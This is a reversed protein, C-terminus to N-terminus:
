RHPNAAMTQRLAAAPDRTRAPTDTGGQYPSLAIAENAEKVAEDPKADELELDAMLEHAEVLKPDIAIAKAAYEQAKDDFNTASVMALGLYAQACAPDQQLAEGFLPPSDVDNFREHLLLGYRAKWLAPAKPQKIAIEFNAKADEWRELGWYGEAMRYADGSRVLVQFCDTAEVKKGHLRLARCGDPTATAAVCVGATALMALLLAGKLWGRM